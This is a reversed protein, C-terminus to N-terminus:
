DKGNRFEKETKLRIIELRKMAEKHNFYLLLGIVSFLVVAFLFSIVYEM